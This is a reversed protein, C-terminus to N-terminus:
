LVRKAHRRDKLFLVSRGLAQISLILILLFQCLNEVFVTLTLPYGTDFGSFFQTQGFALPALTGALCLAYCYDTRTHHKDMLFFLAPLSYFVMAYTYSFSPLAVMLVTLCLMKKWSKKLIIFNILILLAMPIIIANGFSVGPAASGHTFLSINGFIAALDVRYGIGAAALSESGTYTVLNDLFVKVTPLGGFFYFPVFFCLIGYVACRIAEKYRKQQILWLGFIAPYIKIAAALALCVFSFERVIRKPSDQGIVFGTLLLLTLLLINGREMLYLYPGSLIISLPFLIRVAEKDQLKRYLFYVFLASCILTYLIALLFGAQTFRYEYSTLDYLQNIPFFFEFLHFVLYAMPPYIAGMDVYEYPVGSATFSIPNFLDMWTDNVNNFLLTSMSQGHTRLIMMLSSLIAFLLVCLFLFRVNRSGKSEQSRLCDTM